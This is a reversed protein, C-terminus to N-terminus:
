FSVRLPSGVYLRDGNEILGTATKRDGGRLVYVGANTQSQLVIQLESKGEIYHDKKLPSEIKFLCAQETAIGQNLTGNDVMQM